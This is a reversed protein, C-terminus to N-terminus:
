AVVFFFSGGPRAPVLFDRGVHRILSITFSLCFSRLSPLNRIFFQMKPRMKSEKNTISAMSVLM